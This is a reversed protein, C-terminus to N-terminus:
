NSLKENSYRIKGNMMVFVPLATHIEKAPIKFINKELIILDAYKGTEISGIKKEMRLQKAGNITCTRVALDLPLKDSTPPLPEMSLGSGEFATRTHSKEISDLPNPSDSAPYDSGQTIIVGQDALCKFRFQRNYVEKSIYQLTAPYNFFWSGTTNVFVGTEKFKKMDEDRFVQVHALTIHTDKYGAARVLSAAELADHVAKDGITHLHIDLGKSAAEILTDHYLKKSYMIDPSTKTDLFPEFCAAKRTEMTGDTILKLTNLRM